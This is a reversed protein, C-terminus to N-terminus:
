GCAACRLAMGAKAASVLYDLGAFSEAALVEDFLLLRERSAGHQGIAQVHRGAEVGAHSGAASATPRLPGHPLAVAMNGASLLLSSPRFAEQFRSATSDSRAARTRGVVIGPSRMQAAQTQPTALQSREPSYWALLATAGCSEIPM